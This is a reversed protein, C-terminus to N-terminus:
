DASFPIGASQCAVQMEKILQKANNIFNQDVFVNDVTIPKGGKGTSPYSYKPKMQTALSSLESVISTVVTGVQTAYILANIGNIDREITTIPVLQNLIFAFADRIVQDKGQVGANMSEKFSSLAINAGAKMGNHDGKCDMKELLASLPDLISAITNLINVGETLKPMATTSVIKTNNALTGFQIAYQSLFSNLTVAHSTANKATTTVTQIQQTVQMVAENILSVMSDIRTTFQGNLKKDLNRAAVEVKALTCAGISVADLFHIADTFVREDPVCKEVQIIQADVTKATTNLGSIQGAMNKLSGLDTKIPAEFDNLIATMIDFGKLFDMVKDLDSFLTTFDQIEANLNAPLERAKDFVALNSILQTATQQVNSLAQIETEALTRIQALQSTSDAVTCPIVTSTLFLPKAPKPNTTATNLLVQTAQNIKARRDVQTFRHQFNVKSYFSAGNGLGNVKPPMPWDPISAPKNPDIPTGVIASILLFVDKKIGDPNKTSYNKLIGVLDEWKDKGSNAASSGTGSQWSGTSSANIPKLANVIPTIGLTNEFKNVLSHSLSDLGTAHLVAHIVPELIKDFICQAAELVWKLPKIADVVKNFDREVPRFINEINELDTLFTQTASKITDGLANQINTIGTHLLNLFTALPVLASTAETKVGNLTTILSALDNGATTGELLKVLPQAIDLMYSLIEATNLYDPITQSITAVVKQAEVLGRKIDNFIDRCPDIVDTILPSLIDNATSILGAAVSTVGEGIASIADVIPIADLFDFLDDLVDLIGQVTKLINPIDSVDDLVTDIVTVLKTVEKIPGQVEGVATLSDQLSQLVQAFPDTGAVLTQPNITNM